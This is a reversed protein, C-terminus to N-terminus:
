RDEDVVEWDKALMDIQSPTWGTLTSGDAAKLNVNPMRTVTGKHGKEFLEQNLAAAIRTRGFPRATDDHSGPNLYAFSAKKWDSRRIRKGTTLADIAEGFKM